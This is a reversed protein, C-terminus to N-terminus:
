YEMEGVLTCALPLGRGDHDKATALQCLALAASGVDLRRFDRVLGGIGMVEGPGKDDFAYIGFQKLAASLAQLCQHAAPHLIENSM